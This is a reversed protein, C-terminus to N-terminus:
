RDRIASILTDLVEYYDKRILDSYDKFVHAQVGNDIRSPMKKPMPPTPEEILLRKASEQAEHYLELFKEPSRMSILFDCLARSGILALSATAQRSQLKKAFLESKEFISLSILLGVLIRFKKLRKLIGKAIEKAPGSLEKVLQEFLLRLPLWNTVM